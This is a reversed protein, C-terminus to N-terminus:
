CLPKFGLSVLNGQRSLRHLPVKLDCSFITRFRMKKVLYVAHQGNLTPSANPANHM